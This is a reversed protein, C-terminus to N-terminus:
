IMYCKRKETVDRNIAVGKIVEGSSDLVFKMKINIIKQEQQYTTMRYTYEFPTKTAIANSRIHRLEEADTPHLHSLYLEDSLQPPDNHDYGLIRYMGESWTIKDTVVDWQWTGFQLLEESDQFLERLKNIHTTEEVTM